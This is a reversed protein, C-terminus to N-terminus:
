PAPPYNGTINYTTSGNGFYNGSWGWNQVNPNVGGLFADVFPKTYNVYYKGVDATLNQYASALFIGKEYESNPPVLSCLGDTVNIPDM